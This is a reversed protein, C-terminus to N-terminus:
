SPRFGRMGIPWGMSYRANIDSCPNFRVGGRPDRWRYADVGFPGFYRAAQLAHAAREGMANLANRASAELDAATALRSRLWAGRADCTQVTPTGLRIAGDPEIWGHLGFDALREVWPEVQAGDRGALTAVLWRRTAADRVPLRLRRQGRGAFGFARKVVWTTAAHSADSALTALHDDLDELRSVYRAGDLPQALRAAFRRCNVRRLVDLPPAPPVTAGARQLAGLARPTPCWARGLFDGPLGGRVPEPDVDLIIDEPAALGATQRAYRRVRRAMSESRVYGDPDALEEDADLNLLWAIRM